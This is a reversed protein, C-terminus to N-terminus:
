FSLSNSREVSLYLIIWKFNVSKMEGIIISISPILSSFLILRHTRLFYINSFRFSLFHLLTVVNVVNLWFPTPTEKERRYYLLVVSHFSWLDLACFSFRLFIICMAHLTHEFSICAFVLYILSCFLFHWLLLVCCRCTFLFAYHPMKMVICLGRRYMYETHPTSESKQFILVPLDRKTELRWTWSFPSPEHITCSNTLKM